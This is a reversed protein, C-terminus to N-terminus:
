PDPSGPDSATAVIGSFQVGETAHISVGTILLNSELVKAVGTAVASATGPPNETLMVSTTYSGDEAYIHSGSISFPGGLSGSVTGADSTGDGWDITATFDAPSAAPNTDGFTAVTGSFTDQEITTITAGTGSLSESQTVTPTHM